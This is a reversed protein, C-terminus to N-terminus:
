KSAFHGLQVIIYVYPSDYQMYMYINYIRLVYSFALYRSVWQLKQDIYIYFLLSPLNFSILM